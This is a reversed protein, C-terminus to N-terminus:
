RWPADSPWNSTPVPPPFFRCTGVARRPDALWKTVEPAKHVQFSHLIEHVAREQAVHFEILNFLAPGDMATHTKRSDYLVRSSAVNLAAVFTTTGKRKYDDTIPRARRLDNAAVAPRSRACAEPKRHRFLLGCGV